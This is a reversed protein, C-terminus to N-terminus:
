PSLLPEFGRPSALDYKDEQEQGFNYFSLPVEPTGFGEPSVTLGDPFLAEQIRIQNRCSAANWVMAANDLMWAAFDLLVEVEALELVAEGEALGAAELQTRVKSMQDDYVQQTIRNAIWKKIVQDEYEKLEAVRKRAASLNKEQQASKARWVSRVAERFMLSMDTKLRLSSLLDLFKCHLDLRRFKVARCKPNRCTYYGYRGGLKGTSLSGTLGQGCFSCRVFVRSPFLQAVETESVRQSRGNGKLRESVRSFLEETILPEFKGRGEIGWSPIRIIGAYVPNKLMKDFHQASVPGNKHNKLGLGTVKRIVDAASMTGEGYTEFALRVLSARDPDPALAGPCNASVYGLPPRHVWQGSQVASTMGDITREARLENDLQAHASMLTETFRGIPANSIQETASLLNIGVKDLLLRVSHHDHTVRSFRSVSYVVVAAVQRRNAICFEQMKQFQLRDLTKASEAESFVALVDFGERQCLTRCAKEQTELSYNDAQETTSVRCYIVAGTKGNSNGPKM